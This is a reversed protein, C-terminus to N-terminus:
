ARSATTRQPARSTSFRTRRPSLRRTPACDSISCTGAIIKYGQGILTKAESVATAPDATEDQINLKVPHGNVANTGNTAYQLGYRLGEIYEAGYEALPGTRCYIIGVKYPSAAHQRVGAAFAATGALLAALAIGVVVKSFRYRM